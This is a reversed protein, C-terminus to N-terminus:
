PWEDDGFSDILVNASADSSKVNFVLRRCFPAAVKGALRDDRSGFIDGSNPSGPRCDVVTTSVDLQDGAGVCVLLKAVVFADGPEPERAVSPGIDAHEFSEFTVILRPPRHSIQCGPWQHQILHLAAVTGDDRDVFCPFHPEPYYDEAERCKTGHKNRHLFSQLEQLFLSPHPNTIPRRPLLHNPRFLHEHNTSELLTCRNLVRGSAALPSELLHSPSPFPNKNASLKRTHIHLRNSKPGPDKAFYLMVCIWNDM